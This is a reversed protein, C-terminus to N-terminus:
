IMPGHKKDPDALSSQNSQLDSLQFLKVSSLKAFFCINLLHMEMPCSAGEARETKKNTKSCDVYRNSLQYGLLTVTSINMGCLERLWGHKPFIGTNQM